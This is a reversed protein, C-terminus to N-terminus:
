GSGATRERHAPHAHRPHGRAQRPDGRHLGAGPRVAQRNAHGPRRSFPRCGPHHQRGGWRHFAQRGDAWQARLPRAPRRLRRMADTLAVTEDHSFGRLYGAMLFAAMQYDPVEKASYAAILRTPGGHRHRSRGAQRRHARRHAHAVRRRVTQGLRGPRRRSASLGLRTAGAHDHRVLPTPTM